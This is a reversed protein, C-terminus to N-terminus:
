QGRRSVARIAAPKNGGNNLRNHQLTQSTNQQKRREAAVLRGELSSDSTPSDEGIEVETDDGGYCGIADPHDQLFQDSM